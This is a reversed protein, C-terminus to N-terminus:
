AIHSSMPLRVFISGPRRASPRPGTTMSSSSPRQDGPLWITVTAFVVRNRVMTRASGCGAVGRQSLDRRPELELDRLVAIPEDDTDDAPPTV